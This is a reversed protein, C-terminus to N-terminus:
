FPSRYRPENSLKQHTRGPGAQVEGGYVYEKVKEKIMKQGPTGKAREVYIRMLDLIGEEVKGNYARSVCALFAKKLDSDVELQMLEKTM